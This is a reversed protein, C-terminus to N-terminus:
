LLSRHFQGQDEVGRRHAHAGTQYFFPVFDGV